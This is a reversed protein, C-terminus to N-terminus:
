SIPIALCFRSQNKPCKHDGNKQISQHNIWHYKAEMKSKEWLSTKERISSKHSLGTSAETSIGTSIGTSVGLKPTQVGDGDGDGEAAPLSEMAEKLEEESKNIILIGHTHNPMIIFNGLEIFPFHKPIEAWFRTDIKGIEHHHMMGKQIEGFYNIRHHTCITIFYAANSGYDWRQLRSSPIRHKNKFKEM